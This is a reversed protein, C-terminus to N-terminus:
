TSKWCVNMMEDFVIEVSNQFNNPISFIVQLGIGEELVDSFKMGIQCRTTLTPSSLFSFLSM